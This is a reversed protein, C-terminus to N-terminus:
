NEVCCLAKQGYPSVTYVAACRSGSQIRELALKFGFASAAHSVIIEGTFRRALDPANTVLVDVNSPLMKMLWQAETEANGDYRGLCVSVLHGLPSTSRQDTTLCFVAAGEDLAPLKWRTAAEIAYANVEDVMGALSISVSGNRLERTAHWLAAEFSIGHCTPTSNLGKLGFEIAVQAAPANHVSNTFRQPLPEAENKTLLNEVFAMAENLSGLETGIATCIKGNGVGPPLCRKAAAITMQQLRSLRRRRAPSIEAAFDGESTGAGVIAIRPSELASRATTTTDTKSLVLAVNNGGFGFSNSLVHRITAKRGERIPEIGIEPDTAGFGVSPPLIQEQLARVCVVAKIAGSAGLTHGFCRKTSSVPPPTQNFLQRLAKGEMLDNDRTGTGHANIYSIETPMLQASKLAGQMAALAGTGEPHPGTAHFADCSSGWGSLLALAKAGRARATDEAELVLVAAGEGLCIGARAADFPRCGQPDLLLLSGFGNLTLRCLSDCGGALVMDAEGNAILEGAVGIAMAGGSCATSFTLVPGQAGLERAILDVSTGCEHFRLVGYSARKHQLRDAVFKETGLMGGVTAGLVVGLRDAPLRGGAEAVAERAAIWALKDSRSGRVKGALRDVNATVQGVPVHGYRPSPFLTLPRLGSVGNRVTQWVEGVGCGAASIIGLGTVVIRRRTM